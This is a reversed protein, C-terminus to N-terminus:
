MDRRYRGIIRAVAYVTREIDEGSTERGLSFRVTSRAEQETLGMALLVHSPEPQGSACASGTAVCVGERDLFAVLEEGSIDRFCLSLTNPLRRTPHGNVKVWPFRESIGEYLLDRLSETRRATQELEAIAIAAAEGMAIIGATNETGPRLGREQGGGHIIPSITVGKRLYLAGTGKLGHFKHASLSLLDAGDRNGDLPIKGAAQVADTHFLVNHCRAIEAIQRVPQIVGTENNAYAISILVTEPSIAQRLVELDLVGNADVPLYTVRAGWEELKRCPELVSSHETKATIVHPNKARTAVVGFLAMNNSETGGSTFVIDSADAGILRAVAARANEVAERARRGTSHVSSPNGETKSLFDTVARIVDPHPRTTANNDLYIFCPRQRTGTEGEGALEWRDRPRRYVAEVPANARDLVEAATLLNQGSVGIAISCGRTIEKPLPLVEFPVGSARLVKEARMSLNMTQFVLLSDVDESM